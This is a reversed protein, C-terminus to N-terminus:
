QTKEQPNTQAQTLSEPRHRSWYDMDGWYVVLKGREIRIVTGPAGHRCSRLMVADGVSFPESANGALRM